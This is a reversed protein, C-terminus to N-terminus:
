DEFEICTYQYGRGSYDFYQSEKATQYENWSTGSDQQLECTEGSVHASLAHSGTPLEDGFRYASMFPASKSKCGWIVMGDRSVIFAAPKSSVGVFRLASAQLSCEFRNGIECLSATKWGIDSFEDRLLNAPMLLWSAFLNAENEVEDKFDNLTENSDEFCDRINRHCMFHGLEHAYTFRQRRKNEVESNLLITWKETNKTKVLCGEFSDYSGIKTKLEGSFDSNQLAGDILTSIDMPYTNPGHDQWLRTLRNAERIPPKSIKTTM